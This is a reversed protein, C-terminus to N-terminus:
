RENFKLSFHFLFPSYDYSTRNVVFCNSSLLQEAQHESAFQSCKTCQVYPRAHKVFANFAIRRISRRVGFCFLLLLLFVYSVPRVYLMSLTCFSHSLPITATTMSDNHSAFCAAGFLRHLICTSWRTHLGVINLEPARMTFTPSLLVHCGFSRILWLSVETCTNM